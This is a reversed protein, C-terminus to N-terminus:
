FGLLPDFNKKKHKSTKKSNKSYNVWTQELEEWLKEPQIIGTNRFLNIADERKEKKPKIPLRKKVLNDIHIGKYEVIGRCKMEQKLHDETEKKQIRLSKCRSNLKKLEDNISNITYIYSDLTGM